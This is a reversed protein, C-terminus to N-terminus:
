LHQGATRDSVPPGREWVYLFPEGERDALAAFPHGTVRNLPQAGGSLRIGSAGRPHASYDAKDLPNEPLVVAMCHARDAPAPTCKHGPADNTDENISAAGRRATLTTLMFAMPLSDGM